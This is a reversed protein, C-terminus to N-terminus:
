LVLFVSFSSFLLNKPSNFMCANWIFLLHQSFQKADKFQIVNYLVFVKVLLSVIVGSHCFRNWDMCMLKRGSLNTRCGALCVTWAPLSRVLQSSVNSWIITLLLPFGYGEIKMRLNLNNGSLLFYNRLAFNSYLERSFDLIITLKFLCARTRLHTPTYTTYM